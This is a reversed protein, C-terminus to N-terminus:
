DRHYTTRGGPDNPHGQRSADDLGGGPHSGPFLHSLAFGFGHSARARSIGLDPAHSHGASNFSNAFPHFYDGFIDSVLATPDGDWLWDCSSGPNAFWRVCGLDLRHDALFQVVINVQM